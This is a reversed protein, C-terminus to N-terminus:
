TALPVCRSHLHVLAHTLCAGPARLKCGRGLCQEKQQLCWLGLSAGKANGWWASKLLDKAMQEIMPAAGPYGIRQALDGAGGADKLQQLAQEDLFCEIHESEYMDSAVRQVDIFADILADPIENSAELARRCLELLQTAGFEDWELAERLLPRFRKEYSWVEQKLYEDDRALTKAHGLLALELEPGKMKFWLSQLESLKLASAMGHLRQFDKESMVFGRQGPQLEDPPVDQGSPLQIKGLSHSDVFPLSGCSAPSSLSRTLQTGM